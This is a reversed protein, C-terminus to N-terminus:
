KEIMHINLHNYTMEVGDEEFATRIEDLLTFYVDWYNASETWIRITYEIASEGYNSIKVFRAPEDLVNPTRDIAKNIAGKVQSTSNDYSATIAIDVRRTPQTSYNIIKASTIESNPVYIIKNDGTTVKTHILSITDIVGSVGNVEVFDGSKFAGTVMLVVSSAINTLLGQLALSVAVGALSFVALLSTVNIGVSDAVILIIIFYVIVKVASNLVTHISKDGPIKAIIRDTLKFVFKSAIWCVLLTILGNILITVFSTGVAFGLSGLVTETIGMM